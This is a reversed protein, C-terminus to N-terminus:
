KKINRVVNDIGNTFANVISADVVSVIAALDKKEISLDRSKEVINNKTQIQILEILEKVSSIVQSDKIVSSKSKNKSM